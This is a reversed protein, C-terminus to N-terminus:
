GRRRIEESIKGAIAKDSVEEGELMRRELAYKVGPCSAGDFNM